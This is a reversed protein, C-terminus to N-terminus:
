RFLLGYQHQPGGRVLDDRRILPVDIHAQGSLLLSTCKITAKRFTQYSNDALIDGLTLGNEKIPKKNETVIIM